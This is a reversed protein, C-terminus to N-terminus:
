RELPQLAWRAPITQAAHPAVHVPAPAVHVSSVTHKVVELVPEPIIEAIVPEIPAATPIHIVAEAPSGASEVVATIGAPATAHQVEALKEQLAAIEAEIVEPTESM